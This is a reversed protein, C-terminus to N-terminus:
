RSDSADLSSTSSAPDGIPITSGVASRNLAIFSQARVENGSKDTLAWALQVIRPWNDTDSAPADYDNPLGTTETDFFVYM